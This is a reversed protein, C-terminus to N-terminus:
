KNLGRKKNQLAENQEELRIEAYSIVHIRNKANLDRYIKLLRNEDSSISQVAKEKIPPILINGFDDERGILYDVSCEFFNAYEVLIGIRPERAGSEYGAITAQGINLHKALEYQTLNKDLRLNKLTNHINM